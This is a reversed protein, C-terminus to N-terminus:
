CAGPGFRARLATVISPGLTNNRLTLWELRSNELLAAAGADGIYTSALELRRLSRSRALARAGADRIPNVRLDADVLDPMEALATAGGDGIACNLAKLRPVPPLRRVGADGLLIGSLDLEGLGDLPEILAVDKALLGADLALARLRRFAPVLAALSPRDLERLTIKEVPHAGLIADVTGVLPRSLAEIEALFGRRWTWSVLSDRFSALWAKENVRLLRVARQAAGGESSLELQIYEGRPDGAEVLADAYV